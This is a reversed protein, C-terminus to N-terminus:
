RVKELLEGAHKRSIDTITGSLMRAIEDRRQRGSLVAVAVHVRHQRVSKEIRLHHGGLAAIQPLHTICLLQHTRAIMELKNGVREATEGGIGADVEDFILVPVRDVDALISKLGLMVRSLEGGSAIKALPKLPEGPNATFLFEIRDMGHSSIKATTEDQMERTLSIRFEAKGFALDRLVKEMIAEIKRSTQQRKESLSEAAETLESLIKTHEAALSEGKEDSELLGALEKEAAEEYRLIGEIGEGYKRELKNILELREEVFDLRAPDSDYRDKYTRLVSACDGVIAKASELTRVAEEIGPDISAMEGLYKLAQSLNELSSGEMEYLLSSVTDSLSTLKAQNALINREKGLEEKEGNKLAAETIERVQFRLLDIRHAREQARQRLDHMEKSLVQLSQHLSAVRDREGSLKGYSDLLTRQREASLLSQHEHQSHIDVLMSGVESLTQLTVAADNIYARSKGGASLTRRLILGESYEIGIDPLDLDDADFYAQVLAEKEGSKILDSQAREGLALGLADVIISKGAGTEGTLVNLGKEFSVTLDDIIALNRIKLEKLMRLSIYCLIDKKIGGPNVRFGSSCVNKMGKGCVSFVPDKDQM